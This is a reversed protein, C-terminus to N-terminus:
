PAPRKTSFWTCGSAEILYRRIVTISEPPDTELIVQDLSYLTDRHMALRPRSNGPAEVRTDVCVSSLDPSIISLYAVGKMIRGDSEWSPDQYWVVYSGDSRRWLGLLASLASQTMENVLRAERRDRVTRTFWQELVDPPSGRRECAPIVITDSQAAGALTRTLYPMGGFAVVMTDGSAVVKTDDWAILRPYRRYEEPIPVANALLLDDPRSPVGSVIDEIPARAVVLGAGRSTLGFLYEDHNVTIWSLVGSYPRSALWEGTLRNFVNIRREGDDAHLLISDGVHGFADISRFEGPGSGSRGLSGLLAGGPGYIVLRNTTLEPIYILGDPAIQFTAAPSALFLSDPEELLLTDLLVLQAPAWSVPCKGTAASPEPTPACALIGCLLTALGAARHRPTRMVPGGNPFPTLDFVVAGAPVLECQVGDSWDEM